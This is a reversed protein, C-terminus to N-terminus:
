RDPVYVHGDMLLRATRALAAKTLELSGNKKEIGIEVQITGSPHGIRVASPNGPQVRRFIENVITGEVKAATGLCVAGTVAYAKHLKQLATMRAVIDVESAEVKGKPSQYSTPPSVLAIKPVGPSKRTAEEKKAIGMIEAVVSRIEECKKLLVSNGAIEELTENGQVGLDTGRVFVFPNAADVMSVTLTGVTPFKIEEKVKGTPLLKGTVSGGSDIFDLLIKSGSGPAGDIRFDGESVFEEGRVPFEAVIVKKTNTNYIRVKTIPEKPKILGRLLAFPGVAASTNGCNGTYDIVPQAIGVYGFTYNIDTNPVTPPGIYAVKSTLPDAGGLGDIQRLDPSGFAALVVRDRTKPDRPLDKELFFIPKSTGGRYIACPIKM